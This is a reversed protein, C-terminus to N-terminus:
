PRESSRLQKESLTCNNTNSRRSTESARTCDPPTYWGIYEVVALELAETL